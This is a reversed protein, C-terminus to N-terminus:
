VFALSPSASIDSLKKESKFFVFQSERFALKYQSPRLSKQQLVFFQNGSSQLFSYFSFISSSTSVQNHQLLCSQTHARKRERTKNKECQYISAKKKSLMWLDKRILGTGLALFISSIAVQDIRGTTMRKDWLNLWAHRLIFSKICHFQSHSM